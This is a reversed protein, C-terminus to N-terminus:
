NIFMELFNDIYDELNHKPVYGILDKTSSIDCLTIDYEGMRKEIYEKEGGFMNAIENISYNVGSGLEIIHGTNVNSHKIWTLMLGDVIDDVHTFDRRQEGDGVITLPKKHIMKHEFIGIVTSYDGVRTHGCGYVNYFRCISTNLGYTLSYMTCLEEGIAKTTAYPSGHVNHHRSSSGAYIVQIDHKNAYELVNMTGVVNDNFTGMPDKFSPQIRPQAALHFICDVNRAFNFKDLSDRIDFPIYECGEHEVKKSTTSFNDLSYVCHGDKLLRKVLNQGIFGNGGTVIINM